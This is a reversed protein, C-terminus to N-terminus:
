TIEIVHIGAAKDIIMGFRQYLELYWQPPTPRMDDYQKTKV